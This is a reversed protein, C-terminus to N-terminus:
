REECAHNRKEEIRIHLDIKAMYIKNLESAIMGGSVPRKHLVAAKKAM